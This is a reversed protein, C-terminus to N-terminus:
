SSFLSRLWLNPFGIYPIKHDVLGIVESALVYGPDRDENADGKTYIRYEGNIIEIDVVRHITVSDNKEFAIVQGVNLIQKDYREYIVVDGKNIEGTMSDTAIVFSGLMFQNSVLMIMGAMLILCVVTLVAGMIRSFRNRKGLAYKKKKEYLIDIFYYVAIPVLLNIFAFLSDSIASGYPIFYFVLVTLTRFLINPLFGYRKTIYHYFLNYLIGPFLVIGVIDMFRSFDNIEAFSYQSLIDALLCIFYAIVDVVKNEQARLVYRLIETSFIIAAIPLTLRVLIDLKFGYGTNVFGFHLASLYYLTIYLLGVVAVILLVQGSYISLLPRKKLLLWVAAAALLLLLASIARASGGPAFFVLLLAALVSYVIIYLKKSHATM